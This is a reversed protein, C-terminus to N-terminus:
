SHASDSHSTEPGIDPGKEPLTVGSNIYPVISTTPPERPGRRNPRDLFGYKQHSSGPDVGPVEYFVPHFDLLTPVLGMNPCTQGQTTKQIPVYPTEVGVTQTM